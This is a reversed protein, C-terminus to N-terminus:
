YLQLHYNKQVFRLLLGLGYCEHIFIVSSYHFWNPYRSSARFASHFGLKCLIWVPNASLIQYARWIPHNRTNGVGATAKLIWFVVPLYQTTVVVKSKHKIVCKLIPQIFNIPPDTTMVAHCTMLNWISSHDEMQPLYNHICQSLLWPSSVLHPGGAQPNNPM